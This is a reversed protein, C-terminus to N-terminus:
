NTKRRQDSTSSQDVPGYIKKGEEVAAQWEELEDDSLLHRNTDTVILGTKQMAHIFAPSLGARYGAAVLEPMVQDYGMPTPLDANPDFFLPDDPEPDRGFKVRFARIQKAFVEEVEPAAANAEPSLVRVNGEKDILGVPEAEEFPHGLIEVFADEGDIRGGFSVVLDPYTRWDIEPPEDFLEAFGSINLNFHPYVGGEEGEMELLSLAVALVQGEDRLAYTLSGPGFLELTSELAEMVKDYWNPLKEM